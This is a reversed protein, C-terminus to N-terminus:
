LLLPDTVRPRVGGLATVETDTAHWAVVITAPDVVVQEGVTTPVPVMEFATVKAVDAPIIVEVPTRVAGFTPLETVTVAVLTCSVVLDADASIVRVGSGVM